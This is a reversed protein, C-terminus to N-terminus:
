ERVIEHAAALFKTVQELGAPITRLSPPPPMSLSPQAAATPPPQTDLSPPSNASPATSRHTQPISSLFRTVFTGSNGGGNGSPGGSMFGSVNDLSGISTMAGMIGSLGASLGLASTRSTLQPPPAPGVIRPEQSMLEGRFIAGTFTSTHAASEAHLAHALQRLRDAIPGHLDQHSETSGQM